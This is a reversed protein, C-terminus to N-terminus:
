NISVATCITNELIEKVAKLDAMDDYIQVIENNCSEIQTTLDGIIRLRDQETM